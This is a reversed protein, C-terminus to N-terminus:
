QQDSNTFKVVEGKESKDGEAWYLMLGPLFLSNKIFFKFEKKAENNIQKIRKVRKKQNFKALKYANRQRKEVYLRKEQEPTLKIDRLWLSLTGKSVKVKKRIESYSKGLKRLNIARIKKKLKM